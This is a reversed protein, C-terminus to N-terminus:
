IGERRKGKEALVVMRNTMTGFDGKHDRRMFDTEFRVADFRAEYLM